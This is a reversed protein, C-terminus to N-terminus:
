RETRAGTVRRAGLELTLDDVTTVVGFRETLGNLELRGDTGRM